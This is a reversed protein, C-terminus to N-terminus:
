KIYQKINEIKNKWDEEKHWAGCVCPGILMDCFVMSPHNPNRTKIHSPMLVLNNNKM